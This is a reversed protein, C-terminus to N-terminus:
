SLHNLSLPSTFTFSHSYFVLSPTVQGVRKPSDDAMLSPSLLPSFFLLPTIFAVTKGKM